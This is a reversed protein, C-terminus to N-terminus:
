ELELLQNEESRTSAGGTFACPVFRGPLEAVEPSTLGCAMELLAAGIAEPSQTACTLDGYPAPRQSQGSGAVVSIQEPIVIGRAQLYRCFGVALLDGVLYIADPLEQGRDLVEEALKQGSQITLDDGTVIRLSVGNGLRNGLGSVLGACRLAASSNMHEGSNHVFMVRSRGTAAWARGLKLSIGYYDASVFNTLAMTFGPNLHVVPFCLDAERAALASGELVPHLILADIQGEQRRLAALIEAAGSNPVSVPHISLPRVSEAAARMISGSIARSWPGSHDEDPQAVGFSLGIRLTKPAHGPFATVLFSGSGLDTRVAGELALERYVQQVTTLSVGLHKAVTRSAPLRDGSTLGEARCHQSLFRMVRERPRLRKKLPSLAFEQPDDLRSAMASKENTSFKPKKPLSFTSYFHDL